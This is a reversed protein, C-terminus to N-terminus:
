RRRSNVKYGRTYFADKFSEFSKYPFSGGIQTLEEYALALTMKSTLEQARDCFYVPDSRLSIEHVMREKDEINALLNYVREELIADIVLWKVRNVKPSGGMARELRQLSRIVDGELDERGEARVRDKMTIQEEYKAEWREYTDSLRQQIATLDAAGVSRYRELEEEVLESIRDARYEGEDSAHNEM